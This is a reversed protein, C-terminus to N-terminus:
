DESCYTICLKTFHKKGFAQCVSIRRDHVSCVCCLCSYCWSAQGAKAWSTGTSNAQDTKGGEALEVEKMLPQWYYCARLHPQRDSASSIVQIMECWGSFIVRLLLSCFYCHNRILVSHSLVAKGRPGSGGLRWLKELFAKKNLNQWVTYVFIIESLCYCVDSSFQESTRWFVLQFCKSHTHVRIFFRLVQLTQQVFMERTIWDLSVQCFANLFPSQRTLIM